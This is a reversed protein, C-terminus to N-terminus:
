WQTQLQLMVVSVWLQAPVAEGKTGSNVGPKLPTRTAQGITTQTTNQVDSNTRKRESM